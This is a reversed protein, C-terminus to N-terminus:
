VGSMPRDDLTVLRSEQGTLSLLARREQRTMCARDEGSMIGSAVLDDELSKLFQITMARLQLKLLREDSETM